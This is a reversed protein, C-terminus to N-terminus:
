GQVREFRGLLMGHQGRRRWPHNCTRRPWQPVENQLPGNVLHGM